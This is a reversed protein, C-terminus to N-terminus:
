AHRLSGHCSGKGTTFRRSASRTIALICSSSMAQACSGEEQYLQLLEAPIVLKNATFPSTAQNAVSMHCRACYHPLPEDEEHYRPESKLTYGSRGDVPDGVWSNSLRVSGLDLVTEGNEGAIHVWLPVALWVRAQANQAIQFEEAPIISLPRDPLRPSLVVSDTVDRVIVRHRSEPSVARMDKEETEEFVPREPPDGYELCWRWERRRRALLVQVAGFKLRFAAGEPFDHKGWIMRAELIGGSYRALGRRWEPRLEAPEDGGQDASEDATGATSDDGGGDATGAATGAAATAVIRAGTHSGDVGPRESLVM